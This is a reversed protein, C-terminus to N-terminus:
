QALRRHRGKVEGPASGKLWASRGDEAFELWGCPPTPGGFLTEVVCCDQWIFQGDLEVTPQFGLGTWLEVLTEIDVPNMAGDCLLHEDFWVRAGILREHDKLYQGCERPYQQRILEIPAIFDIFELAIAM